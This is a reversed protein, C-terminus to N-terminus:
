NKKDYKKNREMKPQQSKRYERQNKRVNKERRMAENIKQIIQKPIENARFKKDFEAFNAYERFLKHRLVFESIQNKWIEVREHYPLPAKPRSSPKAIRQIINALIKKKKDNEM